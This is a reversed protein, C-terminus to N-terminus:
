GEREMGEQIAQGPENNSGTDHMDQESVSQPTSLSNDSEEINTFAEEGTVAGPLTKPSSDYFPDVGFALPTTSLSLTTLVVGIGHRCKM